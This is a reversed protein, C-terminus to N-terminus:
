KTRLIYGTDYINELVGSPLKKRLNRVINRITTDKYELGTGEWLENYIDLNSVIINKRSLLLALLTKEYKTLSILKDKNFLICNKIDLSIDEGLNIYSNDESEEELKEITEEFTRNLFDMTVPKVLYDVLNLKIAELLREQDSFATLIIIKTKSDKKRIERVVKLGNMSPIDIDLVMVNPKERKYISFVEEVNSAKFIEDFYFRMCLTHDNRVDNENETYLLTYKKKCM